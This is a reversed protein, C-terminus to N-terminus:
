SGPAWSSSERNQGRSEEKSRELREPRSRVDHKSAWEADLAARDADATQAQQEIFQELQAIRENKRLIEKRLFETVEYTEQQTAEREELLLKNEEM